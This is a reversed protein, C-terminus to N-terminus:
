GEQRDCDQGGHAAEYVIGGATNEAKAKNYYFAASTGYAGWAASVAATVWPLVGAYGQAVASEALAFGERTTYFVAAGELVLLLKSFSWKKGKM